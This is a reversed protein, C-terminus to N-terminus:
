MRVQPGPAATSASVTPAISITVQSSPAAPTRGSCRSIAPRGRGVAATSAITAITGAVETTAGIDGDSNNVRTLKGGARNWVWPRGASESLLITNSLGDRVDALRPKANKQLIGFGYGDIASKSGTTATGAATLVPAAFAIQNAPETTAAAPTNATSEYPIQQLVAEVGNVAAYDTAAAFRGAGGLASNPWSGTTTSTTIGVSTGYYGKEPYTGSTTQTKPDPDDDLRAPDESAPNSSPCELSSIRTSSVLSNPVQYGAATNPVSSSWNQSQDYKDYTAQQDLYPLMQTIWALRTGTPPRVTSPLTGFSTAYTAVALAQQRLNNACQSRRAAERASQVAPLLLAVLVGIIAIVVLLEVLTFGTRSKFRDIRM